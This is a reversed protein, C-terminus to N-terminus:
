DEIDWKRKEWLKIGYEDSFNQLYNDYYIAEDINGAVYHCEGLTNMYKPSGPFYVNLLIALKIAKSYNKTKLNEYAAISLLNPHLQQSIAQKIISDQKEVLLIENINIFHEIMENSTMSIEMMNKINEYSYVYQVKKPNGMTNHELRIISNVEISKDQIVRLLGDLRSNYTFMKVENYNLDKIWAVCSAHLTLDKEFYFMLYDKTPTYYYNASDLYLLKIPYTSTKLVTTDRDVKIIQNAYKKVDNEEILGQKVSTNWNETTTIIHSGSKLFPIAGSLTHIHSHSSLVYKVPKGYYKQLFDFLEQGKKTEVSLGQQRYRNNEIGPLEIVVLFDNYEIITSQAKYSSDIRVFSISRKFDYKLVKEQAKTTSM